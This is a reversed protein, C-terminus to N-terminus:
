TADTTVASRNGDADVTATIRNKTDAADRITVTNTAAGALKGVTAARVLRLVGQVTETGEITAGVVATAIESAASAALANADIAGTAFKAATIAEGQISSATIANNALSKVVASVHGNAAIELSNFHTPLSFTAMRSSVSADIRGLEVALDTRVAAAIEAGADTALASATLVSSAMAEVSADMRGSVLAAPLRSQIDQTDVEIRDAVTDVTVVLDRITDLIGTTPDTPTAGSSPIGLIARIATREDTTWDTGGGGGGGGGAPAQELATTTFRTTGTGNDEVLDNFLSDAVGVPSAPDYAVALLHDLHNVELADQVESQVETDWASNWPIATFESGNVNMAAADIAGSAFSASTIGGTSISGVAGTVSAVSGVVNGGVNGTVSAVSGTVSGVAGTVSGVSGTTNFTQSGSLSYGTKDSVTGATVAGSSVSLQATGTGSTILAGASGSAVNPLSTLGLRVTDYPDYATLDYEMVVPAMGSAGSVMVIAKEVGAAFVADPVDFRYVGPMNTADVEVWGGSSYAGTVTQTALTILTASGGPRVYYAKISAANFAIGTKGAGTTSASDNVFVYERQSTTGAKISRKAM